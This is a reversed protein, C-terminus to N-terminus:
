RSLWLGRNRRWGGARPGAASVRRSGGVGRVGALWRYRVFQEVPDFGFVSNLYYRRLVRGPGSGSRESIAVASPGYTADRFRLAPVSPIADARQIDRQEMLVQRDGFGGAFRLVRGDPLTAAAAGRARRWCPDSRRSSGTAPNFVEATAIRGGRQLGGAILVRGDPLSATAPGWRGREDHRGAPSFSNTKPDFVRRHEPVDHRPDSYGGVVLVRGDPM